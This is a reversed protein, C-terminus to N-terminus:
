PAAPALASTGAHFFRPPAIAASAEIVAPKTVPRIHCEVAFKVFRLIKEPTSPRGLIYHLSPLLDYYEVTEPGCTDTLLITEVLPNYYEAALAVSLTFCGDIKLSFVLVDVRMQRLVELAKDIRGVSMVEFGNADLTQAMAIRADDDSELVLVLM